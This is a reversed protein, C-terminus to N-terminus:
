YANKAIMGRYITLFIIKLDLLLSWNEIYYLDHEIRRVLSTNGRWGNVQAWGTIGAKMMHRLMYKPIENKFQQIFVPREPRPGVVSMTGLLVNLFQPLEDLSTKRLISGFRTARNEGKKAWVAGTRTEADVPMSRFKFISFKKGDLGMREQKYFVPGPSSLKVGIALMLLVPSLLFLVCFSFAIDFVRKVLRRWGHFLTDNLTIIPIDDFMSATSKLLLPYQYIDPVIRVTVLENDIFELLEQVRQYAKMPLCIYIQDIKYKLILERVREIPGLIPIRNLKLGAPKFDDVFGIVRLGTWGLQNIKDALQRGLTGAGAVIVFRLNYGKKRISHLILTLLLRFTSIYLVDIIYFFIIEKPHIRISFFLCLINFVLIGMSTAKFVNLDVAFFSTMRQVGYLGFYKFSLIYVFLVLILEPILGTSIAEARVRAYFVACVFAFGHLLIDTVPRVTSLVISRERLM